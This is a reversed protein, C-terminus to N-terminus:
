SKKVLKLNRTQSYIHHWTENFQEASGYNEPYISKSVGKPTLDSDINVNPEPKKFLSLINM